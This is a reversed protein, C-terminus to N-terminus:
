RSQLGAEQLAKEISTRDNMRIELISQDSPSRGLVVFRSSGMMRNEAEASPARVRYEMAQTEANFREALVSVSELQIQETGFDSVAIAQHGSFLRDITELSAKRNDFGGSTYDWTANYGPLWAAVVQEDGSSVALVIAPANYKRAIQKLASSQMNDIQSAAILRKDESDGVIAVTRLGKPTKEPVIWQRVWTDTRDWVLLTGDELRKAPVVLVWAPKRLSGGRADQPWSGEVNAANAHFPALALLLPLLFKKMNM